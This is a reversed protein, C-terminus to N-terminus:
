RLITLYLDSSGWVTVRKEGDGSVLPAALMTTRATMGAEQQSVDRASEIAM